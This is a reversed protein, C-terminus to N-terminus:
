GKHVLSAHPHLLNMEMERLLYSTRLFRQLVPDEPILEIVFQSQDPKLKEVLQGDRIVYTRKM